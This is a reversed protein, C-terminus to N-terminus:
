GETIFEFPETNVQSQSVTLQWDNQRNWRTFLEALKAAALVEIHHGPDVMVMGAAQADQAHHYSLDGTVYADAGAAIARSIFSGGSGGLIAVRSIPKARDHPPLVLRVAPVQFRDQCWAAFTRPAMKAPLDGVRGMAVAAKTVPDLGAPVLGTCNTLGLQTALWDNMGGNASDLNTHASYVTIQHALLDAYMAKQPDRLDLDAAPKFILPHHSFIFDVGQDIAEAVVEPRVDLTTLLHHVPRRPDGLQLGVHDWDEAMAPNAFQEFRDIIELGTTM